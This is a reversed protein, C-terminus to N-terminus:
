QHAALVLVGLFDMGKGKSLVMGLEPGSGSEEGSKRFARAGGGNWDTVRGKTTEEARWRKTWKIIDTPVQQNQAPSNSGRWIKTWPLYGTTRGIQKGLDGASGWILRALGLAEDM